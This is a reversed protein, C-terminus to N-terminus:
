SITQQIKIMNPTTWKAILKKKTEIFQKKILLLDYV